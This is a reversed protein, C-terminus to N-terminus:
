ANAKKKILKKDQKVDWKKIYKVANNIARHVEKSHKELQKKTAYKKMDPKKM